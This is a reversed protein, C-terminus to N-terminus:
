PSSPRWRKQRDRHHDSQHQRQRSNQNQWPGNAAVKVSSNHDVVSISTTCNKLVTSALNFDDEQVCNLLTPIRANLSFEPSPLARRKGHVARVRAYAQVADSSRERFKTEPSTRLHQFGSFRLRSLSRSRLPTPSETPSRKSLFIASEISRGAM